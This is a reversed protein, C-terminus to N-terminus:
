STSTTACRPWPSPTRRPTPPLRSGRAPPALHALRNSSDRGPLRAPTGQAPAAPPPLPDAAAEGEPGIIWLAERDRGKGAGGQESPAVTWQAPTAGAVQWPRIAHPPHPPLRGLHPRRPPHPRLLPGQSRLDRLARRRHRPAGRHPLLRLPRERRDRRVPRDRPRPRAPPRPRRRLARDLVRRAAPGRPRRGPLRPVDFPGRQAAPDTRDAARGRERARDLGRAALARRPLPLGRDPRARLLVVAGPRAGRDLPAHRG